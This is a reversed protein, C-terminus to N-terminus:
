TNETTLTDAKPIQELNERHIQTEFPKITIRM